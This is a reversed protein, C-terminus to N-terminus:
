DPQGLVAHVPEPLDLARNGAAPASGLSPSPSLLMMVDGQHRGTEQSRQSHMPM